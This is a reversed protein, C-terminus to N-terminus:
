SQFHACRPEPHAAPPELKVTLLTQFVPPASSGSNQRRVPRIARINSYPRYNNVAQGHQTTESHKLTSQVKLVGALSQLHKRLKKWVANSVSAIGLLDNPEHQKPLINISKFLHNLTLKITVTLHWIYTLPGRKQLLILTSQTKTTWSSFLERGHIRQKRLSGDRTLVKMIHTVCSKDSQCFHQETYRSNVTLMAVCWRLSISLSTM